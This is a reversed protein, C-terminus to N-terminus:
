TPTWYGFSMRRQFGQLVDLNRARGLVLRHRQVVQGLQVRHFDRRLHNVGVQLRGHVQRHADVAPIQAVHGAVDFFDHGLVALFARIAAPRREVRFRGGLFRHFSGLDDQAAFVLFHLLRKAILRSPM